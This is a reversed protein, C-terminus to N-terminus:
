ARSTQAFWHRGGGVLLLALATVPGAAFFLSLGLLAGGGDPGPIDDAPGMLRVLWYVTLVVQVAHAALLLVWAGRRRSNLAWIGAGILLAASLTQLVALVAGERSFAGLRPDFGQQAQAGLFDAISALMWVYLSAILVVAAQVFALVAASIVQAPRQPGRPPLPVWPPPPGYPGAYGYAPRPGYGYPVGPGTPPPGAYPAGQQTPTGPDAWPDTV